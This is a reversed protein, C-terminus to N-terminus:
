GGVEVEVVSVPDACRDTDSTSVTFRYTGPAAFAFSQPRGDRSLDTRGAPVAGRWVVGREPGTVCVALSTDASAVVTLGVTGGVQREGALVLQASRIASDPGKPRGRRLDEFPPAPWDDGVDAVADEVRAVGPRPLPRM